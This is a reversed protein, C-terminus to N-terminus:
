CWFLDCRGKRCVLRWIAPEMVPNVEDRCRYMQVRSHKCVGERARGVVIYHADNACPQCGAGRDSCRAENGKSIGKRANTFLLEQIKKSMKGDHFIATM